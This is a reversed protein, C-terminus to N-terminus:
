PMDILLEPVSHGAILHQQIIKDVDSFTKYSYWTGEPYIVMCPGLKCRGLCGSRSVRIKGAGHMGEKKLSKKMYEVFPEGGDNACCTKGPAKQHTCIFIHKIYHSM